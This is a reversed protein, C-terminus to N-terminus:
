GPVRPVEPEAQPLARSSTMPDFFFVAKHDTNVPPKPDARWDSINSMTYSYTGASILNRTALEILWDRQIARARALALGFAPFKNAWRNVTRHTYGISAAFGDITPLALGLTEYEVEEAPPGSKQPIVRRKKIVRETRPGGFWSVIAECYEPLYETERIPTLTMLSSGNGNTHHGNGNTGNAAHGGNEGHM